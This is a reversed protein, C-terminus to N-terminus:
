LRKKQCPFRSIIAAQLVLTLDRERWTPDIVRLEDIKVRLQALAEETSLAKSRVCMENPSLGNVAVVRGEGVFLGNQFGDIFAVAYTYIHARGPFVHEQGNLIIDVYTGVTYGAAFIAPSFLLLCIVIITSAIVNKHQLVNCMRM